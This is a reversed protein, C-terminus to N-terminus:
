AHLHKRVLAVVHDMDRDDLDHYTPLNVARAYLRHSVANQPAPAFMPLLSLPWFFVRGDINHDKFSALLADRDFPVNRDVVITPMWFGNVTSPPEPNMALPLHRLRDAYYQFVRRKGAILEDIREVQACGIAAQINSMKYKFGVSAPWFQRAEGPERGHNSLALVRQYLKDDDTVFMGGEGTTVTKTGHFSFTGFRGLAGARHGHWQSGIAEAADEIVPIGHRGGIALLADMGCLNGYLHVAIIARTRSTIAAEVRVPDLCWTDPLVDVLVPKAGLYTVPAASAIWNIDGLIVEDGIGVGLGALGMHMAGTCSSTAIAHRVGVHEAYLKEFRRIYDYCREGWGNAAADAAYRVERETISPKTYHIRRTRQEVEDGYVHLRPVAVVFRGGWDRVFRHQVMIEDAINWPLILVLDPRYEALASPPLIPIGSGPLYKGQKAAAADCVFALLDSKVGAYNLLTNGKAAAGYAVVKAGSRKQEILFALLDNKVANARNQFGEYAALARMGRREEEALVRHVSDHTTRLDKDHCGYIRLSGGHTGLEEVDFIRLGAQRFMAEATWLSLYSFHEHYATDFQAHEIFRMLHPFELTVTGGPKLLIAIGETFDNIDPVHAYVNNGVVLDAQRGGEALRRALSRGFFERVTPIGAREAVAATSATPEIGLGPVGARVFNRLLYGDNAAIEVVFSGQGLGLRTTIMRAYAEAHALWTQSTSSFYAYDDDFLSGASAFDQTQVLWCRTCVFLRLPYTVEPADVQASGRYANSPPAHGLDLFRESLPARCHRCNV